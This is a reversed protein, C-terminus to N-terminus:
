ARVSGSTAASAQQNKAKPPNAAAWLEAERRMRVAINGGWSEELKLLNEIAKPKDFL